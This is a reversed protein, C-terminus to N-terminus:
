LNGGLIAIQLLNPVQLGRHTPDNEKDELFKETRLILLKDEVARTKNQRPNSYIMNAHSSKM